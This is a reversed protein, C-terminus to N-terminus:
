RVKLAEWCGPTYTVERHDDIIEHLEAELATGDGADVAAKTTAYYGWSYTVQATGSQYGLVRLSM